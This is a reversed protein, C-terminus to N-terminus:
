NESSPGAADRVASRRQDENMPCRDRYHGVEGCRWCTSETKHRGRTESRRDMNRDLKEMLAMFMQRIDADYDATSLRGYAKRYPREQQVERVYSRHQNPAPQDAATVAEFDLAAQLADQLTIPRSLKVM